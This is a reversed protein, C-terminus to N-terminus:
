SERAKVARPAEPQAHLGSVDKVHVIVEEIKPGKMRSIRFHWGKYTCTEGEQPVRRMRFLLFGAVTEYEDNEPLSWGLTENVEDVRMQADIQYGGDPLRRIPSKGKFLEDSMRGVIEEVLQEMTVVGATGGYEDIILAMQIQEARMRQLLDAVQGTEPVELMPRALTEVRQDLCDPDDAVCRLVDKVSVIGVINDIDEEYVPFRAHSEEKFIQLFQRITAQREVGVLETRPVMVEYAEREAFEFVRQLMTAQDAQLAGGQKSAAVLMKLEEASHLREHGAPAQLGVLRLVANGTGNLLWILPRFVNETFVTPRAVVFATEEPYQLAISKPALEGLVVHLFTIILFALGVAVSHSAVGIWEGPLWALAPEVLHALAPEGIWGLGLSAVTIGLQTAAIFRDPDDIAHRVIRAARHGQAVLEDVRTRRVSVLSFEAAVFFGNAFVLAAVALLKALEAFMSETM